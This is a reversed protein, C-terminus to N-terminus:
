ADDRVLAILRDLIAGGHTRLGDHEYESTVWTKMGRILQASRLSHERDVYMDDHYVIAAAPVANARLKDTEYLDPWTDREAILDAAERLPQLAPDTRFMWPYIMEGTFLVPSHGALATCADFEGFEERIRQASWRTSRQAYCPEHLVAYLPRAAFSLQAQVQEVFADSLQQGDAGEIFPDELLYHLKHSGTSMGLMIGLAQFAEVTLLGGGPLRVSHDRLHAAVLRAQSVDGPYRAYHASNKALVRRYAARYIDDAGVDLGPLGGTIFAERVGEPAISLYSVVCFGGFSQGLLSWPEDGGMAQRVLEADRVIADARFHTLYHAQEQPNHLRSLTQRNVAASRGTGRQDMLLVRYEDLARDLWNDRGIPRPAAQGPGGQLFLLYPLDAARKDTAAVERVYLSIQEGAPEDHDLPVTFMHDTLVTGPQRYTSIATAQAPADPATQTM